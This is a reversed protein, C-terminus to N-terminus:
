CCNSSNRTRMWAPHKLMMLDDIRRDRDSRSTLRDRMTKLVTPLLPRLREVESELFGQYDREFEERDAGGRAMRIRMNEIKLEFEAVAKACRDDDPESAAAPM